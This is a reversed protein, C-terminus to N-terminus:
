NSDFSSSESSESSSSTIPAVRDLSEEELIAVAREVLRVTRTLLAVVEAGDAFVASSKVSLTPLLEQMVEQLQDLTLAIFDFSQARQFDGKLEKLVEHIYSVNTVGSVTTLEAFLDILSVVPKEFAKKVMLVSMTASDNTLADLAREFQCVADNLGAALLAKQQDERKKGNGSTAVRGKVVKSISRNTPICAEQCCGVKKKVDTSQRCPQAQMSAAVLCLLAINLKKGNM